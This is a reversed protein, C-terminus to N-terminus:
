VVTIRNAGRGSILTSRLKACSMFQRRAANRFLLRSQFRQWNEEHPRLPDHLRYRSGICGHQPAAQKCGQKGCAREEAGRRGGIGVDAVREARLQTCGGAALARFHRLEVPLKGRDAIQFAAALAAALRLAAEEVGAAVKRPAAGFHLPFDLDRGALLAPAM